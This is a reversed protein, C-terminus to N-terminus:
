RKRKKVPDQKILYDNIIELPINNSVVLNRFYNFEETYYNDIIKQVFAQLDAFTPILNNGMTMEHFFTKFIRKGGYFSSILLYMKNDPGIFNFLSIKQKNQNFYEKKINKNERSYEKLIEYLLKLDNEMEPHSKLGETFILSINEAYEKTLFNKFSEYKDKKEESLKSLELSHYAIESNIKKLTKM